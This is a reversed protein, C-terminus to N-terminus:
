GKGWYDMLRYPNGGTNIYSRFDNFQTRHQKIMYQKDADADEDIKEEYKAERYEAEKTFNKGKFGCQDMTWLDHAAIWGVMGYSLHTFDKVHNEFSTEHYKPEVITFDGLDHIDGPFFVRGRYPTDLFRGERVTKMEPKRRLEWCGHGQLKKPNWKVYLQVDYRRLAELLPKKAVDLVHGQVLRSEHNVKLSTM